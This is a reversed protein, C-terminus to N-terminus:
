KKDKSKGYIMDRVNVPPTITYHDVIREIINKITITDTFPYCAIIYKITRTEEKIVVYVTTQDTLEETPHLVSQYLITGEKKAFEYLETNETTAVVHIMTSFDQYKKARNNISQIIPRTMNWLVDGHEKYHRALCAVYSDIIKDVILM